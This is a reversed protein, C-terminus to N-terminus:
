NTRVAEVSKADCKKLSYAEAKHLQHLAEVKKEDGPPARHLAAKGAGGADKSINNGCRQLLVKM